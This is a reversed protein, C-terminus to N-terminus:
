QYCYYNLVLARAWHPMYVGPWSLKKIVFHKKRFIAITVNIKLKCCQLVFKDLLNDNNNNNKRGRYVDLTMDPRDTLRAM